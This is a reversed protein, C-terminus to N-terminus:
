SGQCMVFSNGLYDGLYVWDRSFAGIDIGLAQYRSACIGDLALYTQSSTSLQGPMTCFWYDGFVTFSYGGGASCAAQWQSWFFVESLTLTGGQAAYSACVGANSFTQGTATVFNGFGDQQCLQANTSNGGGDALAPQAVAGGQVALLAVGIMALGVVIRLVRGATNNILQAFVM